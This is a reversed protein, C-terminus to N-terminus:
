AIRRIGSRPQELKAELSTIREDFALKARLESLEARLQAVEEALRADAKGIEERVFQHIVPAIGKMLAQIHEFTM